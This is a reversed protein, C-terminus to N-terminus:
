KILRADAWDVVDQVNEVRCAYAAKQDTMAPGGTIGSLKQDDVAATVAAVVAEDESDALQWVDIQMRDLSTLTRGDGRMDTVSSVPFVFTSYPYDATPIKEPARRRYVRPGVPTNAGVVLAKVAAAVSSM